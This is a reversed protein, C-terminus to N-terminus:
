ERWGFVGYPSRYLHKLIKYAGKIFWKGIFVHVHVFTVFNFRPKSLNSLLSQAVCTDKM